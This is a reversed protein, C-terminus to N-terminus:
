QKRLAKEISKPTGVSVLAHAWQPHKNEISKFAKEITKRCMKMVKGISKRGKNLAKEIRKM